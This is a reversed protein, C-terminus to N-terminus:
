TGASSGVSGAGAVANLEDQRTGKGPVFSRQFPYRDPQPGVPMKLDSHEIRLVDTLSVVVRSTLHLLNQLSVSFKLVDNRNETNIFKGLFVFKDNMSCTSDLSEQRLREEHRFDEGAFSTLDSWQFFRNRAEFFDAVPLHSWRGSAAKM